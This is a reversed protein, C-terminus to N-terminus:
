LSAGSSPGQASFVMLNSGLWPTRPATERLRIRLRESQEEELSYRHKNFAACWYWLPQENVHGMGGQGPQAASFIVMPAAKVLLGVLKDGMAPPLHEAVELSMSLHVSPLTPAEDKLDLPGISLGLRSSALRRAYVSHEFGRADIGHGRLAHVFHGTGCGIDVASRTSPFMEVVAAAFAPAAHAAFHGFVDIVAANYTLADVGLREGLRSVRLGTKYRLGWYSNKLKIIL